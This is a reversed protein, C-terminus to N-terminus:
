VENPENDIGADIAIDVLDNWSLDFTRGTKMSTVLPNRGMTTTLEYEIGTDDLTATGVTERMLLTGKEHITGRM